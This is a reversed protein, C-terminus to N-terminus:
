AVETISHILMGLMALLFVNVLLLTGAYDILEWRERDMARMRQVWPDHRGHKDYVHARAEIYATEWDRYVESWGDCNPCTAEWWAEWWPEWFAIEERKVTAPQYTPWCDLM